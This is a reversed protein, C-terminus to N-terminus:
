RDSLKITFKLLKINKHSKKKARYAIETGDSGKSVHGKMQGGKPFYDTGQIEELQEM